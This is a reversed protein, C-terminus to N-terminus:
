ASDNAEGCRDRLRRRSLDCLIARTEALVLPRPRWVYVLHDRGHEEDYFVAGNVPSADGIGVSGEQRRRLTQGADSHLRVQRLAAM